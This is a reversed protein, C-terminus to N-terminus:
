ARRQEADRPRARSGPGIIRARGEGQEVAGPEAAAVLAVPGREQGFRLPQM